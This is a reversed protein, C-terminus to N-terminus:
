IDRTTRGDKEGSYCPIELCGVGRAKFYARSARACAPNIHLMTRWLLIPGKAVRDGWPCMKIIAQDALIKALLKSANETVVFRGLHEPMDFSKVLPVHEKRKVVGVRTTGDAKRRLHVPFRNSRNGCSQFALWSLNLRSIIPIFFTAALWRLCHVRRTQGAQM